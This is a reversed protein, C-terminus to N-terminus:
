KNASNISKDPDNAPDVDDAGSKRITFRTPLLAKGDWCFFDKNAGWILVGELLSRLLELATFSDWACLSLLPAPSRAAPAALCAM